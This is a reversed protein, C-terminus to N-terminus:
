SRCTRERWRLDWKERFYRNVTTGMPAVGNMDRVSKEISDGVGSPSRSRAQSRTLAHARSEEPQLAPAYVTSPSRTQVAAALAGRRTTYTKTTRSPAPAMTSATTSCSSRSTTSFARGTACGGCRARQCSEGCSRGQKQKDAM